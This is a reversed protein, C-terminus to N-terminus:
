GYLQQIVPFAEEMTTIAYIDFKVWRSYRVTLEFNREFDAPVETVLFGGRGDLREYHAVLGPGAGHDIFAKSLDRYDSEKLDDKYEYTVLYLQKM